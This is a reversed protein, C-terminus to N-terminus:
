LICQIDLRDAFGDCDNDLGDDCVETVPSECQRATCQAYVVLEGSTSATAEACVEPCLEITTGTLYFNEPGCASAADVRTLTRAPADPAARFQLALRTVDLLEQEGVAPLALSCDIRADEVIGAAITRFVADYSGFECVPYRVGGTAISLRQYAVGNSEATPCQAEVIPATPPWVASPPTAAGLGAITHFVYNRSGAVGFQGGPLALLAADFNEATPPSGGISAASEDDTVVVLAKLADVRLFDSWQAFTQLTVRFADDSSVEVDVHRFRDTNAPTPPVPECSTGSLPASVCIDSDFPGGEGHKGILIVRFDIGAEAVITALNVNINREVAEIEERMSGSNDLVIVLDVPRFRESARYRQEVCVTDARAPDSGIVIEAGDIRGDGDTDPNDPDTGRALEADNAVGDGDRDDVDVVQTAPVRSEPADTGCAAALALVLAIFSSRRAHRRM